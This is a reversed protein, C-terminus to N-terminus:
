RDQLVRRLCRAMRQGGDGTRRGAPPCRRGQDRRGHNSVAQFLTAQDGTWFAPLNPENWCEFPWQAVEDIGYREVWHAVIKGVLVGWRAYDKPPTINGQYHFVTNGGSSLTRPMFSLEVVPKMGISLLFDFIRDSNFFSYLPEDDQCILTGMADDLIGHFRM